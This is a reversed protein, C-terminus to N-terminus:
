RQAKCAEVVDSRRKASRKEHLLEGVDLLVDHDAVGLHESLGLLAAPNSRVDVQRRQAIPHQTVKETPHEDLESPRANGLLLPVPYGFTRNESHEESLHRAHGTGFCSRDGLFQLESELFRLGSRGSADGLDRRLSETRERTPNAGRSEAYRIMPRRSALRGAVRTNHEDGPDVVCGSPAYGVLSLGLSKPHRSVTLETFYGM